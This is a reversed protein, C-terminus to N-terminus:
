KKKSRDFDDEVSFKSLLRHIFILTRSVPWLMWLCSADIVAVVAGLGCPVPRALLRM